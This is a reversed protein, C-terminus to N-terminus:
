ADAATRRIAAPWDSVALPPVASGLWVPPLPDLTGLYHDAWQPVRAPPAGVAEWLRWGRKPDFCHLAPSHPDKASLLLWGNGILEQLPPQRQYIATLVETTTEVVVQLRMPEHIEIMQKPLGTRLDSATGEMVGFFGTVNHTVKSGCGYQENNVTSFYYELNIGAGVPGVALLIAELVLGGPDETPDYSILFMRRDLFLGQTVSRRGILACANTAHGLEPRAQSFDQNRARLHALAQDLSPNPPASVLKRCREHASHHRAGELDGKLAELAARHSPPLDVEDFWLIEEDCTNHFAGLFWCDDPIQLGRTRLLARVQPRNAMAAFVRANPGGHRGSCAGCDYASRHPNNQSTSGHGVLVVLPAFGATLGITRLFGQVRDAQEADTFGLRNQEPTAPSGDEIATVQVETSVTRDFDARLRAVWEGLPRPALVKAALVGLAPLGGVAIAASSTLLNRRVEQHLFDQLRLRIGRRLRHAEALGDQGPRPTERVEHAPRVVVPCLPTVGTEDLGQWNIAVGFFGAAGLTEIAPNLTELHRRFGEEREDMCFVLQAQPREARRSWRGRGHNHALANFIQDRFHAEYARLWVFSATEEDLRALCEFLGRLEASSRTRIVAAPLGLHQALRFLPWAHRFLSYSGLEDAAPSRMWTWVLQALYQWRLAQQEPDAGEEHHILRQARGALYEPLQGAFLAQRVLFEAPYRRFYWRLTGLSPEIGWLAACLRRAHVRELVLRVALYGLPDVPYRQGGYDPHLHRWLLMGSWGPLELALQELYGVWRERPLDLRELLEVIAELPDTPLAELEQHWDALEELVWGQDREASQRWAAYFGAARERPSWAATGLDLFSALQRILSPRLADLLDQGTLALLLGRLTLRTGVQGLLGLLQEGAHRQLRQGPPKAAGEERPALRTLFREAQEPSLDILEEPHLRYHELGLVELCASWLEGVASAEPVGAAALFRARTAPPVDAQIRNLVGEEDMLWGLQSRRVPELGQILAVLYVERRTLPGQPTDLLVEGDALADDQELVGILDARTIRGQHFLARFHEAPLYGFAGTALRAAKLAEPFPLHQYGHLTNHHVFDKIPAQGPLLHELHHVAARIRARIDDSEAAASM